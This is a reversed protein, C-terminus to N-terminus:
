RIMALLEPHYYPPSGRVNKLFRYAKDVRVHESQEASSLCHIRQRKRRDAIVTALLLLKPMLQFVAILTM